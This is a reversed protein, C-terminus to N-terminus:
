RRGEVVRDHGALDKSIRIETYGADALLRAVGAAGNWHTEVVLAGAPQLVTWAGTVVAETQGEDVLAGRPEWDVVDAALRAIEPAPVYPPNSVVLDWPGPPLGDLVDGPRLDIALGTRAANEGALALAEASVDVATVRAGAHEAAIALAIAGSGTGVDLVTPSAVGRLRALCREVVIETEPRPILARRDVALTLGRFDWEGLVYQVPEREARREVAKHCKSVQAPTLARGPDAYLDSRKVGLTHAVILEADSRATEIRAAELAAASRSLAEGVTM